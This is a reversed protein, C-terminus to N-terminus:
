SPSGFVFQTAMHQTINIVIGNMKMMVKGVHCAGCSRCQLGKETWVVGHCDKTSCHVETDDRESLCQPDTCCWQYGKQTQSM